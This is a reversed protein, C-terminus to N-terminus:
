KAKKKKAITSDDNDDATAIPKAIQEKAKAKAKEKAKKKSSQFDPDYRLAHTGMRFVYALSQRMAVKTLGDAIQQKSDTWMWIGNLRTLQENVIKLEIATRREKLGLGASKSRSADYLDKCDTVFPSRGCWAATTPDAHNCDPYLIKTWFLKEWELEDLADAAEQAESTLSSRSVRRLKRSYWNGICLDQPRGTDIAQDTTIFNLSGGQSSLDKRTAWAADMYTGWRLDYISNALRTWRLTVDSNEQFFRLTKNAELLDSITPDGVAM